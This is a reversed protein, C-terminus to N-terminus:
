FDWLTDHETIYDNDTLGVSELEITTRAHVCRTPKDRFEVVQQSISVPGIELKYKGTTVFENETGDVEPQSMQRFQSAESYVSGFENLHASITKYTDPTIDEPQTEDWVQRVLDMYELDTIRKYNGNADLLKTKFAEAIKSM